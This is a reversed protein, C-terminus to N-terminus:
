RQVAFKQSITGQANILNLMYLGNAFAATNILHNNGNVNGTYVTKGNMDTIMIRSWELTSNMNVTLIDQAPNPNLTIMNEQGANNEIVSSAAEPLVLANGGAETFAVLAFAAGEKNASPNLFGSALVIAYKGALGKIDASFRAIPQGGAPAVGLTYEGAPVSLFGRSQGYSLNEVLRADGALVDVAPADTAGHWVLLDVEGPKTAATRNDVIPYVNFGIPLSGPNAAFGQPNVVGNAIAIYNKDKDLTYTFTALTDKYGTSSGPAIGVVIPTGADVQLAETATRFAFNDRFMNGNVYIDVEKAAPDAANHIIQIRAKGKEVVVPLPILEGPANGAVFLGFAAGQKNAQPNLFGSALVTLAAGKFSRLDATYGILRAGNAPAIDLEYIGPNVSLYGAKNGYSLASVIKTGATSVDVAPADTAGHWVLLDIKNTDAAKIRADAVPFVNFSIPAAAADNNRAFGATDLVGNAIAIYNKGAQLTLKFTALAENVGKSTGPAVAVNLEVGAPVDLFATNSRFKFNDLLPAGNVYIDVEKAAPDAANHIIQLKANDQKPAVPLAILEGGSPRVVYLGFQAGNKNASPNLFGSALVTIASDKFGALGAQYSILTSGGVPAIDLVYTAPDVTLYSTNKGYSLTPILVTNGTSVKVAPADTAGHFVMLDTKGTQNATIRADPVTYLTFARGASAPDGNPAFGTTDLVGNAVVIYKKSNELKVKFTALAEAASTSTGPAIALNIDVGAPVTVFPTATRFKFDPILIQGNAYVDVTRAASDAANHIVQVQATQAQVAFAGAFLAFLPSILKRM